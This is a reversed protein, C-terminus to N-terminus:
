VQPGYELSARDSWVQNSKYIPVEVGTETGTKKIEFIMWEPDTYLAKFNCTIGLYVLNETVEDVRYRTEQDCFRNLILQIHINDM